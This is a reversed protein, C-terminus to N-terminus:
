IREDPPTIRDENVIAIEKDMFRRGNLVWTGFAASWGAIDWTSNHTRMVWYYGTLRSPPYPSDNRDRYGMNILTKGYDKMSFM